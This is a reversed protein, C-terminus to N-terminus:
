WRPGPVPACSSPILRIMEQSSVYGTEGFNRVRVDRLGREGLLRAVQSPVTMSDRQWTGWITSGGFFWVERTPALTNYQVTRRYGQSDVVIQRGAFPHRQWYVYSSWRMRLSGGLEHEYPPFWALRNYPHGPSGLPRTTGPLIGRVFLVAVVIFVAVGAADWGFRVM